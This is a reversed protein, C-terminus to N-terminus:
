PTMAPASRRCTSRVGADVGWGIQNHTANCPVLGSLGCGASNTVTNFPTTNYATDVVNVNHIVGSVQAEGWGQKVHLAGVVDPWKQGGYTILSPTGGNVGITPFIRRASIRAAEPFVTAARASAATAANSISGYNYQTNLNGGTFQATIFGSLKV